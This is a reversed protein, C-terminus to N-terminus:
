ATPKAGSAQEAGSAPASSSGSRLPYRELALYRPQGRLRSEYLVFEEVTWPALPPLEPLEPLRMGESRQRALTVHARFGRAEPEVGAAQCAAEVARALARCADRGDGVGLWIVRPASRSGFTGRGELALRFPAAGVGRLERRVRQLAPLELHGLFRMTLHLSDPLVWRYGPAVRACEELHAALAERNADSLEVAVFSRITAAM